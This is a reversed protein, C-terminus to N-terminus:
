FLNNSADENAAAISASAQKAQRFLVAAFTKEDVSGQEALCVGLKKGTQQQLYLASDLQEQTIAGQEILIEGIKPQQKDQALMQKMAKALRNVDFPKAIYRQAGAKLAKLIAVKDTSSTVMLIKARPEIACIDRITQHPDTNPMHMDLTVVAPRLTGFMAVAQTGNGAEGKVEIEAMSAAAAVLDRTSPDDDVILLSM